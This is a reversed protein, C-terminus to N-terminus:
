ILSKSFGFTGTQLIAILTVTAALVHLQWVAKLALAYSCDSATLATGM